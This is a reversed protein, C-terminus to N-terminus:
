KPKLEWVWGAGDMAHRTRIKNMLRTRARFLRGRGYGRDRAEDHFLKAEVPGNALRALIWGDIEQDASERVASM